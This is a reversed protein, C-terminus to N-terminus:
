NAVEVRAALRTRLAAERESAAPYVLWEKFVRDEIVRQILPAFGDGPDLDSLGIELAPLGLARLKARKDVDFGPVNLRGHEVLVQKAAAHIASEACSEGPRANLHSFHWSKRRGKRAVPVCRLWSM